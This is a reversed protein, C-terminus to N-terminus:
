LYEPSFTLNQTLSKSPKFLVYSTLKGVPLDERYKKFKTLKKDFQINFVKSVDQNKFDIINKTSLVNLNSDLKFEVIAIDQPSINSNFQFEQIKERDLILNNNSQIGKKYKKLKYIYSIKEAISNEHKTSISCYSFYPVDDKTTSAFILMTNGPQLDFACDTRVIYQGSPYTNADTKYLSTRKGKLQKLIEVKVFNIQVNNPDPQINLIRVKAIHSSKYYSNAISPYFCKCAEAKFFAICLILLLGTIKM